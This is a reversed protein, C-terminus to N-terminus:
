PKLLFHAASVTIAFTGDGISILELKFLTSLFLTLSIIIILEIVPITLFLLARAFLTAKKISVTRTKIPSNNTVGSISCTHSTATSLPLAIDTIVILYIFVIYVSSAKILILPWLCILLNFLAMIAKKHKYVKKYPTIYILCLFSNQISEKNVYLIAIMLTFTVTLMFLALTGASILIGPSILDIFNINHKISFFFLIMSGYVTLTFMM